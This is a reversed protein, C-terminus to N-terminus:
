PMLDLIICRKGKIFGYRSIWLGLQLSDLIKPYTYPIGKLHWQGLHLYPKIRLM